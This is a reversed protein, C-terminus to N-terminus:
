EETANRRMVHYGFPTEVLEPYLEGDGITNLAEEFEPVMSGKFWKGLDGGTAASPGDSNERAISEFSDVNEKLHDLLKQAEEQAEEKSRTVSPNARMAGEYAILIHSGARQELSVRRIFAKGVPFDLPGGVGGFSLTKMLAMLTDPLENNDRFAGLFVHGDEFDNHMAAMEEFNAATLQSKIEEALQEAEEQTRTVSDPKNQAGEFSIFFADAGYHAEVPIANRKIIHYGFDTEVPEPSIGGVELESVAADFAPVMQGQQWVGLDGGDPGSPGDSESQALATFGEPSSSLQAILDQAKQYAEEKTRSIDPNARMAGSYAVLIHAGAYDGQVAFLQEEAPTSNTAPENSCGLILFVPLLISFVYKM